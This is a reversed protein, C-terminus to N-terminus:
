IDCGGTANRQFVAECISRERHSRRPIYREAPFREGRDLANEHNRVMWTLRESLLGLRQKAPRRQRCDRWDVIGNVAYALQIRGGRTGRAARAPIRRGAGM